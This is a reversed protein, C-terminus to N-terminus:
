PALSTSGATAGSASRRRHGLQAGVISRFAPRWPRARRDSLHAALRARAHAAPRRGHRAARRTAAVDLYQYALPSASSLNDRGYARRPFAGIVPPIRGAQVTSIATRGRSGASTCRRRDPARRRERHPSRGPRLVAARHAGSASCGSARSACRTTNTTPTTSSRTEDTPGAIPPSRAASVTLRRATPAAAAERPQGAASRAPLRRWLAFVAVAARCCPRM